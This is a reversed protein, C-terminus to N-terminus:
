QIGHVIFCRTFLVHVLRINAGQRYIGILVYALVCVRHIQSVNTVKLGYNSWQNYDFLKIKRHIQIETILHQLKFL